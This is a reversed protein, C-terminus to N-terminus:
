TDGVGGAVEAELSEVWRARAPLLRVACAYFGFAALSFGATFVWVWAGVHQLLYGGAAPGLAFGYGYLANAGFYSGRLHRPAMTDIQVNLTPFLIVEGLSMVFTAAIWPWFSDTPIWAYASFGLTFLTLSLYIRQHLVVGRLLHLLLFQCCIITIANTAMLAAYLSVDGSPRVQGLYQIMTSEFQAYTMMILINALVLLQFARDVKLIAWTQALGAAAKEVAAVKRLSRSFWAVAAGYFLYTIMLLYFTHQEGTLGLYLGALPGLAAGVNLMFYRVNFALERVGPDALSDSIMAKSPPELLSRGLGAIMIAIIYIPLESATALLGYAFASALTGCVMVGRRGFRDSLNGIFFSLSSGTLATGSLILGIMTPSLGFQQKLILALYPWIMFFTARTVFTGLIATWVLPTFRGLQALM